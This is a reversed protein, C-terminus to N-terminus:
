LQNLNLFLHMRNSEAPSIYEFDNNLGSVAAFFPTFLEILENQNEVIEGIRLQTLNRSVELQRFTNLVYYVIDSPQEAMFCNALLLKNRKKLLFYIHNQVRVLICQNPKEGLPFHNLLLSVPHFWNVKTFFRTVIEVLENLLGFHLSAGINEVQNLFVQREDIPNIMYDVSEDSLGILGPDNPILTFNEEFVVLDVSDFQLKFLPESYIWDNFHRAIFKSSSIKALTNKAALVKKDQVSIVLFSFGDLSVQISLRYQNTNNIDFGAATNM